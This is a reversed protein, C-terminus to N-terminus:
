MGPLDRAALAAFYGVLVTVAAPVTDAFTETLRGDVQGLARDASGTQSGSQM